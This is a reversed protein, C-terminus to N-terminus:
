NNIKNKESLFNAEIASLEKHLKLAMYMTIITSLIDAIPQAYMIGNIGWVM